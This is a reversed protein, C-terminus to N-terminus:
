PLETMGERPAGVLAVMNGPPHRNEHMLQHALGIEKGDWHFWMPVVRPTGDFWNYALRAPITSRLLQQAVPDDLLSVDGQKTPM